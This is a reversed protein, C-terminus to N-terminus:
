CVRECFNPRLADSTALQVLVQFFFRRMPRPNSANFCFSCHSSVRASPLRLHVMNKVRSIIGIDHTYIYIYIYTIQIIYTSIGSINLDLFSVVCILSDLTMKSDKLGRTQVDIETEGAGDGDDTSCRTTPWVM